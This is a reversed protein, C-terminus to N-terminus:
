STAPRKPALAAILYTTGTGIMIYWPWPVAPVFRNIFVVLTVAAIMAFVNGEDRGLRKTTVALLFVGLMPGLVISTIAFANFVLQQFDESQGFYIALAALVVGFFVVFLRALRLDDRDSRPRRRFPRVLDVVASTSLSQMASDLSGMSAALLAAVLVGKVGAPLGTAIFHAFVKDNAAPRSADVFQGYYIFLLVGVTLFLCVVPLGLLANGIMSRQAKRVDPCTLLRQTMDQDTGMAALTQFFAQGALLLFFTEGNGSWELNFVRLKGADAATQWLVDVPQGLRHVLLVICVIPGGIVLLAQITDTFMVAKIGGFTTYCLVVVVTGVVVWELPWGMIVALAVCCALLRYGSGMTRSAFFFLTTMTRTAPGFRQGLYEYVTTVRGGYFAPLLVLAIIVKALFSGVYLQLYACNGGFSQGPVSVFTLASVETALLSLMAILWHQRRGGLFYDETDKERRGAWVGVVLVLGAYIALVIYDPWALPPM